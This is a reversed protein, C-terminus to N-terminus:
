FNALKSKVSNFYHHFVKRVIPASVESGNGSNEVMVVVSIM